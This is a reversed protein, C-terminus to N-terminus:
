LSKVANDAGLAAQPMEPFTDLEFKLNGQNFNRPATVNAIDKGRM